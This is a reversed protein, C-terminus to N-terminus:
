PLGRSWSYKSKAFSKAFPYTMLVVAVQTKEAPGTILRVVATM